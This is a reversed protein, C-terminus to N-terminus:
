DQGLWEVSPELGLWSTACGVIGSLGHISTMNSLIDWIGSVITDAEARPAPLALVGGSAVPFPLALEFLIITFDTTFPPTPGVAGDRCLLPLGSGGSRITCQGYPTSQSWSGNLRAGILLYVGTQSLASASITAYLLTAAIACRLTPASSSPHLRLHASASYAVCGCMCLCLCVSMRVSPSPSSHLRTTTCDVDGRCSFWEKLRGGRCSPLSGM